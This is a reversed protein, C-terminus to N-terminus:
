RCAPATSTWRSATATELRGEHILKGVDEELHLRQSASAGRAAASRSRRPPRARRAARRVPQDPLEQAHGPLLLAQARLPEAREGHLRARARDQHRVRGRAPQHGAAHGAHGPLRSLDPYQARRRVGDRLRLVDQDGDPAARPGRARHGDRVQADPSVAPGRRAQGLGAPAHALRDRARLRAGVRLLTAEDFARGILQLGIPLGGGTFGAPVSIGAPGGPQGPDTFIDNLYM